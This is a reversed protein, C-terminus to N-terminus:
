PTPSGEFIERIRLLDSNDRERRQAARQERRTERRAERRAERLDERDREEAKPRLHLEMVSFRITDPTAEPFVRTLSFTFSWSRNVLSWNEM